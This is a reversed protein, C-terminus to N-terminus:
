PYYPHEKWRPVTTTITLLCGKPLRQGFALAKFNVIFVKVATSSLMLFYCAGKPDSTDPRVWPDDQPAPVRTRHLNSLLAQLDRSAVRGDGDMDAYAFNMGNPFTDPWVPGMPQGVWNTSANPREFRKVGYTHAWFILDAEDVVGNDSADGPWVMAEQASLPSVLLVFLLIWASSTFIYNM